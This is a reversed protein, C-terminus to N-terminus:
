PKGGSRALRWVVGGGDDTVILAGDRAEAVAVPRGWVSRDDVVFGTMVDIYEGTPAGNRFPLRVLKYGTRTARNWSGHLTVLAEGSWAAAGRRGQAAISSSASRRRIPKSISTPISRWAPSIRVSAGTIHIRM